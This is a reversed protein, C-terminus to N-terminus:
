GVRREDRYKVFVTRNPRQPGLTTMGLKGAIARAAENSDDICAIVRELKATNFAWDLALQCAQKAMGRTQVESRMACVLEFDNAGTAGSRLLGAFGLPVKGEMVAFLHHSQRADPGPLTGISEWVDDQGQLSNLLATHTENLPQLEM